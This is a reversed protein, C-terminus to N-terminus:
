VAVSPSSRIFMVQVGGISLLRPVIHVIVMHTKLVKLVGEAQGAPHISEVMDKVSPLWVADIHIQLQQAEWATWGVFPLNDRSVIRILQVTRCAALPVWEVHTSNM